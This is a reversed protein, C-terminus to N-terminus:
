KFFLEAAAPPRYSTCVSSRRVKLKLVAILCFLTTWDQTMSASVDFSASTIFLHRPHARPLRQPFFSALSMACATSSGGGCQPAISQAYPSLRCSRWSPYRVLEIEAVTLDNQRLSPLPCMCRVLFSTLCGSSLLVTKKGQWMLMKKSSIQYFLDPVPDM